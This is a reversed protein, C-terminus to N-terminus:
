DKPDNFMRKEIPRQCNLRSDINQPPSLALFLGSAQRNPLQFIVRTSSDGIQEIM